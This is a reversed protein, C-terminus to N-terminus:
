TLAFAGILAAIVFVGVLVGSNTLSSGGGEGFAGIKAAFPLWKNSADSSPVNSVFENWSTPAHGLNQIAQSMWTNLTGGGVTHHLKVLSWFDASSEPWDVGIQDLIQHAVAREHNVYTVGTTVQLLLEDSTLQRAAQSSGSACATRLADETTGADRTNDPPMLQFIGTEHYSSYDCPYGGSENQIWSLLFNIPLDGANQELLSRWQEVSAPFDSAVDGFQPSLQYFGGAPFRRNILGIHTTM